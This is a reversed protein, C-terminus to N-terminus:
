MSGKHSLLIFNNVTVTRFKNNAQIALEVDEIDDISEILNSRRAECRGSGAQFGSDNKTFTYSIFYVYM